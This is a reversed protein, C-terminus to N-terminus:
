LNKYNLKSLTVPDKVFSIQGDLKTGLATFNRTINALLILPGYPNGHEILRHTLLKQLDIEIEDPIGLNDLLNQYFSLEFYGSPIPNSLSSKVSEGHCNMFVHIIEKNADINIHSTETPRQTFDNFYRLVGMLMRASMPNDYDEMPNRKSIDEGDFALKYIVKSILTDELFDRFENCGEYGICEFNSLEAKQKRGLKLDWM